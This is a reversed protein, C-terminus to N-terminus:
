LIKKHPSSERCPWWSPTSCKSKGSIQWLKRLQHFVHQPRPSFDEEALNCELLRRSNSTNNQYTITSCSLFEPRSASTVWRFSTGELSLEPTQNSINKIYKSSRQFLPHSQYNSYTSYLVMTLLVLNLAIM